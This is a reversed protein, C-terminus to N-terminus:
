INGFQLLLICVLVYKIRLTWIGPVVTTLAQLSNVEQRWLCGKGTADEQPSLLAGEPAEQTLAAMENM